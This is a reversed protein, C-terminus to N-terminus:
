KGSGIRQYYKQVSNRYKVPVLDRDLPVLNKENSRRLIEEAIRDQLESLPKAVKMKILDWNPEASHRKLDKRIDRAQERIRSAEARLDPDNMMEEVDRLLDSWKRFDDGTIPRMMRLNGGGRNVTMAGGRDEGEPNASGLNRMMERLRERESQGENEPQRESDNGGAGSTQNQNDSDNEARGRNESDENNRESPNRGTGSRNEDSEADDREAPPEETEGNGRQSNETRNDENSSQDNEEDGAESPKAADIENKLQQRLENVSRQARKLAQTEDGLISEAAKDIGERLEEIGERAKQEENLADDLWGRELSRRASDLARDPRNVESDRYTEYLDEALLPELTEAEEITERMQRRIDEVAEKQNRLEQPLDVKDSDDELSRRQSRDRQPEPRDALQDAIENQKDELKQAQNRLNQMEEAFQGSTRDQFDDRLDELDRQARTGEAAAQSVENQELAEAARQLNERTQELESAQEDMRQRNQDEQMRELLEESDRLMQQQQERLSKLRKEVEQREEDSEADELANQLEKIRENLDAQRRALERLRSLIQRDEAQQQQEETQEQATREQEYRNEEDDIELQELQENQRNNQQGAQGSQQQQQRQRTVQHERARLKLLTQYVAQESTLAPKLESPDNENKAQSLRLVAENVFTRATEVYSKSESDQLNEELKALQNLVSAQSDRIVEVDEIFLESPPDSERRILKWTASIIEKQLKSLEQAQQSNQNGAQQQQPQGGPPPQGERFIEEFHRIEAFFMDSEVRRREGDPGIDEAWFYYSVLDDPEVDLDEMALVHDALQKRRNVTETELEIEHDTKNAVVYSLGLAEVGFDDWVSAKM